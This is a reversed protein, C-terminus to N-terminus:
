WALCYARWASEAEEITQGCVEQFARGFDSTRTNFLRKIPLAGFREFLYLVFSGSAPYSVADDLDGWRSDDIMTKLAPLRGSAMLQRVCSHVHVQYWCRWVGEMAIGMATGESMFFTGPKGLANHTVVHTVEHHAATYIGGYFSSCVVKVSETWPFASGGPGSREADEPTDYFFVAIAGAYGIELANLIYAKHTELNDTLITLNQEAYSNPRVHVLFNPSEFVRWNRDPEDPGLVSNCGSGSILVLFFFFTFVCRRM